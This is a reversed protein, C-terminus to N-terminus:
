IQQSTGLNGDLKGDERYDHYLFRIAAVVPVGIIMGLPGWIGGFFTVAFIVWLPSIGVSGGVIKPQILNSDLQGVIIQFLLAWLAPFPGMVLACIIYVIVASVIPGFFPIM